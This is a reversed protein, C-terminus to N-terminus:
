KYNRWLELSYSELTNLQHAGEGVWLIRGEDRVWHSSFSRYQEISDPNDLPVSSIYHIHIYSYMYIECVHM